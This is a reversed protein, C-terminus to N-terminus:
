YNEFQEDMDRWIENPEQHQTQTSQIPEEAQQSTQEVEKYAGKKAEKVAKEVKADSLKEFNMGKYFVEFTDEKLSMQGEAITPNLYERLQPLFENECDDYSLSNKNAFDRLYGQNIEM